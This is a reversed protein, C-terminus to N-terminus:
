DSALCPLQQGENSNRQSLEGFDRDLLAPWEYGSEAWGGGPFARQTSACGQYGYGLWAYEGRVLLFTAIDQEPYPLSLNNMHLHFSSSAYTFGM